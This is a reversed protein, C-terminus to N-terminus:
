IPCVHMFKKDVMYKNRNNKKHDSHVSWFKEFTDNNFQAYMCSNKKDMMYKNHNKKLNKEQEKVM